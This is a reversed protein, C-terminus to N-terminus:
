KTELSNTCLLKDGPKANGHSRSIVSSDQIFQSRPKWITPTTWYAGTQLMDMLRAARSIDFAGNRSYGLLRSVSASRGFCRKDKRTISERAPPAAQLRPSLIQLWISHWRQTHGVVTTVACHNCMNRWALVRRM